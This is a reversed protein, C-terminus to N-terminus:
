PSVPAIRLTRGAPDGAFRNRRRREVVVVGGSELRGVAKAVAATSVGLEAAIARNPLASSGGSAELLDVILGGTPTQPFPKSMPM